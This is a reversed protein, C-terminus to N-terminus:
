INVDAVSPSNNYRELIILIINTAKSINNLKHLNELNSIFYFVFNYM